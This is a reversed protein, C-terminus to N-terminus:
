LWEIEGDKIFCHFVTTGRPSVGLSPNLTIEDLSEGFNEWKWVPYKRGKDEDPNGFWDGERNEDRFPFDFHKYGEGAELKDPNYFTVRGDVPPNVGMVRTDRNSAPTADDPMGHVHKGYEDIAHDSALTIYFSDDLFRSETDM